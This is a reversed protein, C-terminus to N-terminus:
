EEAGEHTMEQDQEASAGEQALECTFHCRVCKSISTPKQVTAM